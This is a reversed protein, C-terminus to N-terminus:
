EIKEFTWKNKRYAFLFKTSGKSMSRSGKDSELFKEYPVIVRALYPIAPNDNRVLGYVAKKTDYETRMGFQTGHKPTDSSKKLKQIEISLLPGVERKVRDVNMESSSSSNREAFAKTQLAENQAVRDQLKVIEERLKQTQVSLRDVDQRLQQIKADKEDPALKEKKCTITLFLSGVVVFTLLRKMTKMLKRYPFRIHFDSLIHGPVSYSFQERSL